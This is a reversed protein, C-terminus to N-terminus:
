IHMKCINKEGLKHSTKRNIFIEYLKLNKFDTNLVKNRKHIPQQPKTNFNVLGFNIYIEKQTKM